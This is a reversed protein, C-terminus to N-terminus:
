PTTEYALVRLRDSGVIELRGGHMPILRRFFEHVPQTKGEKDVIEWLHMDTERVETLKYSQAHFVKRKMQSDSFCSSGQPADSKSLDGFKILDTRRRLREDVFWLTRGTEDHLVSIMDVIGDPIPDIWRTSFKMAIDHGLFSSQIASQEVPKRDLLISDGAYHYFWDMGLVPDLGVLYILDKDPRITIHHEVGGTDIYYATHSVGPQDDFDGRSTLPSSSEPNSIQSWWENKRFYREMAQRSAPCAQWLGSNLLYASNNPGRQPDQRPVALGYNRERPHGIPQFHIFDAQIKDSGNVQDFYYDVIIFEQVHNEGPLPRIALDWIYDQIEVPLARFRPFEHLRCFEQIPSAM